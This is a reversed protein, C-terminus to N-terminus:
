SYSTGDVFRALRRDTARLTEEDGLCANYALHVLGIHLLCCRLRAELDPLDLGMDRYHDVSVSLMESQEIATHWPAWFVFTALEYLFDGYISCGWDFVATVQGQSALVNRNLLDNHVLHRDVSVTEALDVMVEFARVFSEDGISSDVLRRKWGHTRSDPLDEMVSALYEAWTAYAAKGEADWSGYGSTASIDTRRLADLTALVAPVTAQWGAADLQELPTGRSRTSICYWADFARDIEIVQPIPLDRAAFHAALRDREFDDVHRGFRIALESGNLTFGFCRSWAGDGVHEVDDAADGFRQTLFHAADALEVQTSPEPV